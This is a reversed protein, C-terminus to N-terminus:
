AYFDTEMYIDKTGDESEVPTNYMQVMLCDEPFFMTHLIFPHIEFFDGQIFTITQETNNDALRVEVSGNIVYFAEIARKHYHVGRTSGKKSNLVNIQDFGEHVLQVLSGREDNHQFDILRTKYLDM